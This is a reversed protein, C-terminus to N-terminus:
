NMNYEVVIKNGPSLISDLQQLDKLTVYLRDWAAQCTVHNYQKWNIKIFPYADFYDKPLGRFPFDNFYTLATDYAILLIEAEEIISHVSRNNTTISFEWNLVPLDAAIEKGDIRDLSGALEALLKTCVKNRGYVWKELHLLRDRVCNLSNRRWSNGVNAAFGYHRQRTLELKKEIERFIRCLSRNQYDIGLKKLEELIKQIERGPRHDQASGGGLTYNHGMSM